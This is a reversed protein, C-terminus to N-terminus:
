SVPPAALYQSEIESLDSLAEAATGKFVIRGRHMVYVRDAFELATRVHQEVILAALGEDVARRVTELLRKVVLPALGLSLEDAVLLDLRRSLMRALALMQQEGGSLLGAAVRERELLEPFLRMAFDIDGRGVRLNDMTSLQMFVSREETVFGVGAQALRWLPTPAERGKWIVQGSSRPLEGTLALLTTTKGAGNPGLLVVLEGPRVELEVEHIVPISGYGSSLEQAALLPIRGAENVEVLESV